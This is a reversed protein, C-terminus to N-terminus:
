QMAPVGGLWINAPDIKSDVLIMASNGYAKVLADLYKNYRYEKSYAGDAAASAMFEAVSAEASATKQLKDATASNIAGNKSTEANALKIAAYSEADLRLKDASIEASILEQYKEAVEVPPHISELVISVIEIGIGNGDPGRSDLMETLKESFSDAFSRRDVSLLSNLDSRIVTSTILEYASGRMISEPSKGARLYRALDNIRYEIRLNVSVLENGDGLLLKFENTGHSGTWINDADTDSEYGVTMKRVTKTEYKDVSDFPWPLTLHIGPELIRDSLKGCRFLAGEEYPEVTHVCTGLWFVCIVCVAAYPLLKKILRISWLSRMTIGTNNELYSIVNYDPNGSFLVPVSVDPNDDTENRILRVALSISMALAAYAHIICEAWILVTMPEWFGLLKVTMAVFMVVCSLRSVALASASSRCLAETRSDGSQAHQCYKELILFLIFFVIMLIPGAWNLRYVSTKRGLLIVSFAIGAALWLVSLVATILAGYKKKPVSVTGIFAASFILYVAYLGFPLYNGNLYLGLSTGGAALLVAVAGIAPLYKKFEGPISTKNKM